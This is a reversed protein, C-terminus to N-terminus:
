RTTEQKKDKFAASFGPGKKVGVRILGRSRHSAPKPSTKLFRILSRMSPMM